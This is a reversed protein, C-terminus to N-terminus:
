DVQGNNKEEADGNSAKVSEILYLDSDFDGMMRINESYGTGNYANNFMIGAMLQGGSATYEEQAGPLSYFRDALRLLVGQPHVKVPSIHNVLGGFSKLRLRREFVKLKYLRESDLGQPLLRDFGPAATAITQFLAAVSTRRDASVVQWQVQEECESHLRYFEGFQLLQRQQKYLAIQKKIEQKEQKALHDLNLEYGLSGFCAVNFRTALSTARLTQQHPSASVHAGMTSLPYFLSLGGQIKLREIPDTNDSAWIQPSFCLMGLDFRNGGSSCSELLIEPRPLFVRKLIDYLGLIYRHFFEGQNELQPSFMDSVHRNMDWKVYSVPVNDLIQTIKSVIYDRVEQRTLDLVLQNRGQLTQRGPVAVAYEPHARYLESDQNIMEPELWLGFQLGLRQLRAAFPELGRPFKKRNVTYDGLGTKDNDRQGFWGDDLVFLEIGLEAAQRALRLLKGQNYDFMFAEWSNILVPRERYQWYDPIIHRNVFNHLNRSMAGIGCSSFTLVAEPSEFVEGRKLTWSFGQPNIGTMVRVLNQENKQVASYHNGSYILNFGYVHGCSETAEEEALFFAPNQRNSSAGTTSELALIGYPLKTEQRQAERIWAGHLSTMKFRRDPLDLMLSMFKRLELSNQSSNRLIVRRTIVDTEYYVTYILQLCIAAAKDELDILLTQCDDELGRALPLEGPESSGNKITWDKYTFDSVFSSDPMKIELPCHRYDGRGSGSWELALNDLCYTPDDKSYLVSSGYVATRKLQLSEIDQVPLKVGYYVHELHGYDTVRFIYSSNQTQLYFINKVCIIM